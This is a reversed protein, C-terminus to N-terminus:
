FIFGGYKIKVVNVYACSLRSVSLFFPGILIKSIKFVMRHFNVNLCRM